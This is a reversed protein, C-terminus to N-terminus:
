YDTQVAWVGYGLYSPKADLLSFKLRSHLAHLVSLHMMLVNDHNRPM